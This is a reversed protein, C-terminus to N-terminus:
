RSVPSNGGPLAARCHTPPFDYRGRFQFSPRRSRLRGESLRFGSCDRGEVKYWEIRVSAYTFHRRRNPAGVGTFSGSRVPGPRCSGRRDWPPRHYRDSQRLGMPRTDLLRWPIALMPGINTRTGAKPLWRPGVVASAFSAIRAGGQCFARGHCERLPQFSSRSEPGSSHSLARPSPDTGRPSVPRIVRFRCSARLDRLPM